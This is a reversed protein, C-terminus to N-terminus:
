KGKFVINQTVSNEEKGHYVFILEFNGLTRNRRRRDAVITITPPPRQQLGLLFLATQHSFYESDGVTLGDLQEIIGAFDQHSNM